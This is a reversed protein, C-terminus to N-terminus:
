CCRGRKYVYLVTTSEFSWLISRTVERNSLFQKRKVGRLNMWEFSFGKLHRSHPLPKQWDRVRATWLIRWMSSDGCLHGTQLRLKLWRDFKFVWRNVCVSILGYLHLPHPLTNRRLQSRLRCLKVCLRVPVLVLKIIVPLAPPLPPLLLLPLPLLILLLRLTLLLTNSSTLEFADSSVLWTEVSDWFMWRVLSGDIDPRTLALNSSLKGQLSPLLMFLVISQNKLM